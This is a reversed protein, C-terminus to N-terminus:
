RSNVKTSHVSRLIALLEICTEALPSDGIWSQVASIWQGLGGTIANHIESYM